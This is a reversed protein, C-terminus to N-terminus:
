LSQDPNWDFDPYPQEEPCWRAGTMTVAELQRMLELRRSKKANASSITRRSTLGLPRNPTSTCSLAYLLRQM